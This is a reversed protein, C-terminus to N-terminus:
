RRRPKPNRVLDALARETSRSYSDLELEASASSTRYTVAKVRFVTVGDRGTPNLSDINAQVGRVRILKGPRIEWPQIMRGSVLDVIPSAVTLTGANQPYQHEALWQDGAQTANNTSGINDGLDLWAERTLGANTLSTVTQTRQLNKITGSTAKYRVRVANYLDAATAPAQFGDKISAEYGVTTPWTSWEFRNLGTSGSEWAAWYFTPELTMLDDLYKKPTNGDYNAFQDITYGGTSLSANAADYKPLFRILMDAVVQDSTITSGSYGSTKTTGDQLYRVAKIYWNDWEMYCLEDPITNASGSIHDARFTVVTDGTVIAGGDTDLAATLTSTFPPTGAGPGVKSAAVHLTSTPTAKTIVEARWGADTFGITCDVVVRAIAQGALYIPLYISDGVKTTPPVTIGQPVWVRLGQGPDNEDNTQQWHAYQLNISSPKFETNQRDIMIYPRTIDEAHASPGVASLDWVQGDGATRGLDEIRGECVTQGNRRDYVYVTAYYDLEDPQFRIPRDFQLQINAFGGPVVSRFTLDRLDRTVIRDSRTTKLRVALPIPISM